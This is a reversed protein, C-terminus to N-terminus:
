NALLPITFAASGSAALMFQPLLSTAMNPATVALTVTTEAPVSIAFAGESDAAAREGTARVTVMADPVAVGNANVVRGTVMARESGALPTEPLEYVVLNDGCGAIAIVLSALGAVRCGIPLDVARRVACITGM